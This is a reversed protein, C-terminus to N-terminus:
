ALLFRKTFYITPAGAISIVALLLGFKALVQGAYEDRAQELRRSTMGAVILAIPPVLWLGWSFFAGLAGLGLLLSIVAMASIPKYILAPDDSESFVGTPLPRESSM